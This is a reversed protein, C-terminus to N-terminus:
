RPKKIFRGTLPDRQLGASKKKVSSQKEKDLTKQFQDVFGSKLTMAEMVKKIVDPDNNCEKLYENVYGCLINTDTAFLNLTEAVGDAIVDNTLPNLLTDAYGQAVQIALYELFPTGLAKVVVQTIFKGATTPKMQMWNLFAYRKDMESLHNIVEQPLYGYIEHYERM